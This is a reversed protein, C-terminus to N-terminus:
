VEEEDDDDLGCEISYVETFAEEETYGKAIVLDNIRRIAEEEGLNQWIDNRMCCHKYNITM